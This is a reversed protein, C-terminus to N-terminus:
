AAPAETAVALIGDIDLHEAVLRKILEIKEIDGPHTKVLLDHIESAVVYTDEPVITTRVYTIGSGLEAALEARARQAPSIEVPTPVTPSRKANMQPM